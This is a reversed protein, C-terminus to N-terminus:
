QKFPEEKLQTKIDKVLDKLFVPQWIKAPTGEGLKGNPQMKFFKLDPNHPNVAVEEGSFRDKIIRLKGLSFGMVGRIGNFGKKLFLLTKEGKRFKPAGHIIMERDGVKGGPRKVIIEAAGEESGKIDELVRLKVYTIIFKGSSDWDSYEDLVEGIIVSDAGHILDTKTFAKLNTAYLNKFSSFVLLLVIIQLFLFRIGKLKL